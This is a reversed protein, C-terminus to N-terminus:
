MGGAYDFVTEHRYTKHTSSWTGLSVFEPKMINARHGRSKVGDDIFLQLVLDKGGTTGYAVNEGITRMWRGYKEIRTQM